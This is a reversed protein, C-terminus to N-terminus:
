KNIKRVWSLNNPHVLLSNWKLFSSLSKLIIIGARCWSNPIKFVPDKFQILKVPSLRSCHFDQVQHQRLLYSSPLTSIVSSAHQLHGVLTANYIIACGQSTRFSCFSFSHFSLLWLRLVAAPPYGANCQLSISCRSGCGNRLNERWMWFIGKEKVINTLLYHNIECWIIHLINCFLRFM